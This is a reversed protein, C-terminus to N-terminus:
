QWPDRSRSLRDRLWPSLLGLAILGLWAVGRTWISAPIWPEIKVSPLVLRDDSLSLGAADTVPLRESTALEYMGVSLSYEGPPADSPIVIEYTDEIIEGAAWTYTPRTSRAPQNDQQALLEEQESLLHVFVTYDEPMATTPQWYLALLLSEGLRFQTENLTYGLLEIRGDFTTSLPTQAFSAPIPGEHTRYLWAYTLGDFEVTQEPVRFRYTDWQAEWRNASARRIVYNLAFIRYKAMGDTLPAIPGDYYQQLMELAQYHVGMAANGADPQQNVYRALQDIGEAQDQPAFVRHGVRAGGLLGNYLTGYYPHRLLGGLGHLLVVLLALTTALARRRRRLLTCGVRRAFAVLGYGAFVDIAPFLPLVYRPAKKSALSMQLWFFFLYLVLSLLSLREQRKAKVTAGLGVVFFPLSVFTTKFLV